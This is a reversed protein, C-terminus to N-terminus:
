TLRMGSRSSMVTKDRHVVKAVGFRQLSRVTTKNGQNEQWIQQKRTVTFRVTHWTIWPAEETGRELHARFNYLRSSSQEHLRLLVLWITVLDVHNIKKNFDIQNPYKLVKIDISILLEYLLFTNGDWYTITKVMSGSPLVANWLSENPSNYRWSPLPVMDASNLALFPSNKFSLVCPPGIVHKLGFWRIM